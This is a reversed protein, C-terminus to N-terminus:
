LLTNVSCHLCLEYRIQGSTTSDMRWLQEGGISFQLLENEITACVFSQCDSAFSISVVDGLCRPSALMYRLFIGASLDFLYVRGNRVGAAAYLGGSSVDLCLVSDNCEVFTRTATAGIRSSSYSWLKITSDWSSTIFRNRSVCIASIGDSHALRKDIVRRSEISYMYVRNDWCGVFVFQGDPSVDCCSLPADFVVEEHNSGGGTPTMKLYCDKSATFMLDDTRSLVACTVEGGHSSLSTAKKWSWVASMGENKCLRSKWKWRKLKSGWDQTNWMNFAFRGLARPVSSWPTQVCFLSFPHLRRARYPVIGDVEDDSDYGDTFASSHLLAKRRAAETPFSRRRIEQLPARPSPLLDPTALKIKGHNIFRPPHPTSFLLKPTQGFEQIQAELSAKQVPDDVTELDVAGEYSLYYFV